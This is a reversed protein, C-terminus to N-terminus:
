VEDLDLATLHRSGSEFGQNVAIQYMCAATLRNQEVGRGKEHCMGLWCLQNGGKGDGAVSLRFLRVAEAHDVPVGRGTYYCGGLNVLGNVHNMEASLKYLRVAEAENVEVGLGNQYCWGLNSIAGSFKREAALKYLRFSEAYDQEVGVGDSSWTLISASMTNIGSAPPSTTKPSATTKSQQHM